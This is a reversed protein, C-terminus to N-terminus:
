TNEQKTTEATVAALSTRGFLVGSSFKSLVVGEKEERKRGVEKKRRGRVRSAMRQDSLLLFAKPLEGDASTVRGKKEEEALFRRTAVCVTATDMDFIGVILSRRRYKGNGLHYYM